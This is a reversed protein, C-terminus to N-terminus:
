ESNEINEDQQDAPPQQEVPTPEEPAKKKLFPFRELIKFFPTKSQQNENATEEVAETILFSEEHSDLDMENEIDGSSDPSNQNEDMGNEVVEINRNTETEEQTEELIDEDEVEPIGELDEKGNTAVYTLHEIMKEEAKEMVKDVPEAQATNGNTEILNENEEANKPGEKKDDEIFFDKLNEKWRDFLKKDSTTEIENSMKDFQIEGPGQKNHKHHAPCPGSQASLPCVPAEALTLVQATNHNM